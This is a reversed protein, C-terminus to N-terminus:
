KNISGWMTQQKFFSIFSCVFSCVHFSTSMSVRTSVLSSPSVESWDKPADQMPAYGMQYNQVVTCVTEFPKHNLVACTAHRIM